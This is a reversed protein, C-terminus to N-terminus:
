KNITSALEPRHLCIEVNKSLWTQPRKQSLTCGDNSKNASAIKHSQGHKTESM